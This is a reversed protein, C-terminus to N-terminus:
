DILRELLEAGEDLTQDLASFFDRCRPCAYASFGNREVLELDKTKIKCHGCIM